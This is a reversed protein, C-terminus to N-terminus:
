SYLILKTYSVNNSQNTNKYVVGCKKDNFYVKDFCQEASPLPAQKLFFLTPKAFPLLFDCEFLEGQDNLFVWLPAFGSKTRRSMDPTFDIFIKALFM